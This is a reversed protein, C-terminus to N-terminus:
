LSVEAEVHVVHYDHFVFDDPAKSFTVKFTDYDIDAGEVDPSTFFERLANDIELRVRDPPFTSNKLSDSTVVHRLQVKNLATM